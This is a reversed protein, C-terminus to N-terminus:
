EAAGEPRRPPCGVAFPPRLIVVTRRLHAEGVSSAISIPRPVRRCSERDIHRPLGIVAVTVLKRSTSKEVAPMPNMRDIFGTRRRRRGGVRMDGRDIGLRLPGGLGCDQALCRIGLGLIVAIRTFSAM